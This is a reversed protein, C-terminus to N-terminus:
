APIRAEPGARRLRNRRATWPPLLPSYGDDGEVFKGTKASVAVVFYNAFPPQNSLEGPIPKGGVRGVPHNPHFSVLWVLEHRSRSGTTRALSIGIARGWPQDRSADRIAKKESVRPRGGHVLFFADGGENVAALVKSSVPPLRAAAAPPAMLLLGGALVAAPLLSGWMGPLRSSPRAVSRIDVLRILM